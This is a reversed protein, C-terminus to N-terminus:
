WPLSLVKEGVEYGLQLGSSADMRFHVGLPIRSLANEEAMEFFSNFERPTGNFEVRGEHCRDTMAYSDGYMDALVIAAAAGFTAHGSPYAPFNPTFFQGSGDPCMVTNWNNDGMVQRIYDVPRLYNHRYKEAWARVGSDALALGVKAYTELAVPLPPNQGEIVQNSIAIWRGAPTFTLIPCDDSWFDAIWREESSPDARAVACREVVELAEQYITSSPDTTFPHPSPCVETGDAAFMRVNEWYPLLAPSFDPYTPQWLGEGTPPVYNPDNNRLFAEHGATDKASWAFVAEAVATGYNISRRYTESGTEQQYALYFETRLNYIRFLHEAPAEPMMLEFMREYTATLALGWHYTKDPEPEPLDLGEYYTRLSGHKGDTGPQVCEYAALGIYGSTRASIPPRYGPTFREIELYLENWALPVESDFSAASSDQLIPLPEDLQCATILWFLLLTLLNGPRILRYITTKM